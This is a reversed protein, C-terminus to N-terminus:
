KVTTKHIFTVGLAGVGCEIRNKFNGDKDYINAYCPERYQSYGAESLTYSLIVIDGSVPDAAVCSPSDVWSDTGSTQKAIVGTKELTNVDYVNFGMKERPEGYVANIVYLKNGNIAMYNGPAVDKVDSGVIKKVMSPVDAYNGKCIVFVDTGNSVIDTPNMVKSIDKIKTQSFSALDIISISCDAYGNKSNYGDSNAVYLKGGAVAMQETNPDTKLTKEIELTATDIQCVYGSFMSAYVKGNASALARPGTADGTPKISDKIKLTVPDVVWILNSSNVPIYMKSGYVIAPQAGEGLAVGNANMFADQLAPTATSTSYDYSTISSPIKGSMNGSNITYFGSLTEVTTIEPGENDDSCSAMCGAMLMASLLYAIKKM